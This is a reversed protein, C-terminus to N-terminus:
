TAGDIDTVGYTIWNAKQEETAGNEVPKHMGAVNDEADSSHDLVESLNETSKRIIDNIESELSNDQQEDAIITDIDDGNEDWELSGDSSRM